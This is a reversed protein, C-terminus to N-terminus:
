SEVTHPLQLLVDSAHLREEAICSVRDDRRCIPGVLRRAHRGIVVHARDRAERRGQELGEASIGLFRGFHGVHGDDVHGVVRVLHPRGHVHDLVGVLAERFLIVRHQVVQLEADEELTARYAAMWRPRTAAEEAPRATKGWGSDVHMHSRVQEWPVVFGAGHSCFVSDAPNDLDHEPEYGIAALVEDTNHCPRYGDLTLSLHGRGRTYGVVDM